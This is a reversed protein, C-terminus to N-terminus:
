CYNNIVSKAFKVFNSKVNDPAIIKVDAGFGFVWSYFQPSVFVQAKVKFIGNKQPIMIVDTGFRDIVASALSDSFEMEVTEEKGGFMGFVKKSYMAMDFDSFAEKGERNEDSIATKTMKDVRYHKIIGSDSDYGIMYYNEDDWSLSWPSIKYIKNNHRLSKTKDPLIDFYSFTLQKDCNIATHIMDVNYYISENEYKIRNTVFVQRQLEKAQHKSAFSEIKKILADSKKKTIFKSSQVADVLLKLEPMEFDRSAIYYGSNRGNQEQIIDIGFFQLDYINEYISKREAAIGVDNLRSIIEATSIRHEEDTEEMMFKLIYLMKLRQNSSKPM